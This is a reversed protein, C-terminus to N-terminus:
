KKILVRIDVKGSKLLNHMEPTSSKYEKPLFKKLSLLNRSFNLVRAIDRILESGFGYFENPEHLDNIKVLSFPPRHIVEISFPYGWMNSLKNSFWETNNIWNQRMFIKKFPNLQHIVSITILSNVGITKKQDENACLEVITFDLLDQTWAYKLLEQRWINVIHCTHTTIESSEQVRFIESYQQNHYKIIYEDRPFRSLVMYTCRRQHHTVHM